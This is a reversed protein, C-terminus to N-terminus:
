TMVKKFIQKRIMNHCIFIGFSSVDGKSINLFQCQPGCTPPDHSDSIAPDCEICNVMEHCQSSCTKCVLRFWIRYSTTSIIDQSFSNSEGRQRSTWLSMRMWNGLRNIFFGDFWCSLNWNNTYTQKKWGPLKKGLLFLTKLTCM